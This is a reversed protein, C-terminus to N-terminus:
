TRSGGRGPIAAASPAPARRPGPDDAPDHIGLWPRLPHVRGALATLAACAAFTCVILIVGEVGPALRLPALAMAGVVIVSQHLVYLPFVAATLRRRWPGDVRLHRHAFGIAAVIAGWQSLTAGFGRAAPPADSVLLSWGAVALSLALWRQATFAPWAEPARALVAGLGFLAAYQAHLFADDLLAHTPPFLPRLLALTLLLWALPLLLLSTGGLMPGARRAARDLADPWRRLVAWLALTYLMLYPLFWLHNWTPLLLCGRGPRCFSGSGGFYLTLFDTYGGAYGHFQVVEFYSQPPVILAMGALLPLALRKLRGGLWAADAARGRLMLSTAAGSVVFLLSMRWPSSLLMWPELGPGAHPSKVHWSWGVYYMGVHYPVLLAFAIIRLWDLFVLRLTPTPETM